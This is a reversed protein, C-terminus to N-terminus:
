NICASISFFQALDNIMFRFSMYVTSKEHHDGQTFFDKLIMIKGLNYNFPILLVAVMIMVAEILGGIEGLLDM